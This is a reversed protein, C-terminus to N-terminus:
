AGFESWLQGDTSFSYDKADQRLIQGLKHQQRDALLCYPGTADKSALAFTGEQHWTRHWHNIARTTMGFM